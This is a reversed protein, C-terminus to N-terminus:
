GFGWMQVELELKIGTQAHVKERVLDILALVDNASADRDNMIFNAHLASVRAGGLTHGKLGAEEILKGAPRGPPNRFVSGACRGWPQKQERAQRNTEVQALLERTAANPLRITTALVVERRYAAARFRSSRYTFGMDKAPVEVIEGNQDLISGGVVIDSMCEGFAGANGTIAGGVTGPIHAGFVLGGLGAACMRAALSKLEVGSDVVVTAGTGDRQIDVTDARLMIVLGRVGADAVLLNTGRGLVRWEVGAQRAAQVLRRAEEVDRAIAFAEAPGGIRFSTRPALPEEAVLREHALCSLRAIENAL